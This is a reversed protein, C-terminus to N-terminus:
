PAFKVFNFSNMGQDGADPVEPGWQVPYIYVNLEDVNKTCFCVCM